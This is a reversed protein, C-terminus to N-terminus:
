QANRRKFDCALARPHRHHHLPEVVTGNRQPLHAVEAEIPTPEHEADLRAQVARQAPLLPEFELALHDYRDPDALYQAFTIGHAALRQAVFREGHYSLYACSYTRM